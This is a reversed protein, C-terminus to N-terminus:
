PHWAAAVLDAIDKDTAEGLHRLRVFGRRDIAFTVPIGPKQHVGYADAIQHKPDVVGPWTAGQTLMFGAANSRTDDFVVGLVTVKGTVAKLRPFEARCPTCWSAWFNLLVPKGREDALALRNGQLDVTSFLPAARGVAAAQAGGSGCAALGVVAVALALHLRLSRPPRPHAGARRSGM